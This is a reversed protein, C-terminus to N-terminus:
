AASDVPFTGSFRKGTSDAGEVRFSKGGNPRFSFRFSPNESISIGGAITLLLDDGQRVTLTQVFDAPIYLRSIQDMQMGSYNPHRVMVQAERRGDEGAPFLRFRLTGIPIDGAVPKLAPASCGGSAKVFRAAAWLTGDSLEAVAHINTYDDVRVRTAIRDIGSGPALTFVAALPSPNADIVLTISRVQRHDDAPLITRLTVPVVAADEARYPADIALLASGDQLTKGPFIQGALAPWPDADAPAAKGGSTALIGGTFALLFRRRGPSLRSFWAAPSNITQM